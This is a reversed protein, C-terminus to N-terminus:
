ACRGQHVVPRGDRVAPRDHHGGAEAGRRSRRRAGRGGPHLLGRLHRGLRLDPAREKRGNQIGAARLNALITQEFSTDDRADGDASDANLAGSGDVASGAFALSRHPSLSEVTFPGSVRVKKPDEIPSTTSCSSSPMGGSRRTSRRRSMGEEIDPNNAISKLTIHQVREYVFGHRIDNTIGAPPM